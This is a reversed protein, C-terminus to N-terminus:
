VKACFIEYQALDVSIIRTCFLRVVTQGGKRSVGLEHITEEYLCFFCPIM